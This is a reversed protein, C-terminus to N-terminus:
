ATAARRSKTWQWWGYLGLGLFFAYQV